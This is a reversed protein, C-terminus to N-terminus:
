SKEFTGLSDGFVKTLTWIELPTSHSVSYDWVRSVSNPPAIPAVEEVELRRM